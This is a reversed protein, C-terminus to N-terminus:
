EENINQLQRTRQEVRKELEKNMMKVKEDAIYRESEDRYVAVIEKSPLRFITNDVWQTIREDKYLRMPLKETRGTRYVKRLSELMGMEKVGPFVKTIPKGIIQFKKVKSLTQGSKNINIFVFDDGEDEHRYIAVGDYMNEFLARFRDENARLAKESLKQETIDHTFGTAGTCEGNENFRLEAKERVWKVRGEVLLRHEIDYIKQSLAEKWKSHVYERDEPHVYNLFDEYALKKGKPIGFIKYNEDSWILVNNEIDLDWSGIHAIDQAKSLIMQQQLLEEYYPKEPM